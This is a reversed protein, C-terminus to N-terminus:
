TLAFRAFSDFGERIETITPLLAVSESVPSETSLQNMLFVKLRSVGESVPQFQPAKLALSGGKKGLNHTMNITMGSGM